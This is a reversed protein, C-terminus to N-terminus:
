IPHMPPVLNPWSNLNPVPLGYQASPVSGDYVVQVKSRARREFRMKIQSIIYERFSKENLGFNFFDSNTSGPHRWPKEDSLDMELSVQAMCAEFEKNDITDLSTATQAFCAGDTQWPEERFDGHFELPQANWVRNLYFDMNGIGKGQLVVEIDGDDSGVDGDPLMDDGEEPLLDSSEM